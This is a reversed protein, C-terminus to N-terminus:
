RQLQAEVKSYQLVFEPLREGTIKIAELEM